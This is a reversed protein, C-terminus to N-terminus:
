FIRMSGGSPRFFPHLFENANGLLNRRPQHGPLFVGNMVPAATFGAYMCAVTDAFLMRARTEIGPADLLRTGFLWRLVPVLQEHATSM